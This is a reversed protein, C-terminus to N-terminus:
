SIFGLITPIKMTLDYEEYLSHNLIAVCRKVRAETPFFMINRQNSCHLWYHHKSICLCFLVDLSSFCIIYLPLFFLFPFFLLTGNNDVSLCVTHSPMKSGDDHYYPINLFTYTVYLNVKISICCSCIQESGPAQNINHKIKLKV